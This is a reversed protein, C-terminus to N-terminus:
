EIIIEMFESYGKMFNFVEETSELTFEGQFKSDVRGIKDNIIKCRFTKIIGCLNIHDNPNHTKITFIM